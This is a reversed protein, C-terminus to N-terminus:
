DKGEENEIEKTLQSVATGLTEHKPKVVQKYHVLNGTWFLWKPNEELHAFHGKEIRATFVKGKSNEIFERYEPTMNQYSKTSKIQEINITVKDGDKISDENQLGEQMQLYAKAEAESFGKKRAQKIFERKQERNM